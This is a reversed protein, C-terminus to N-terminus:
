EKFTELKDIVAQLSTVTGASWPQPGLATIVLGDRVAEMWEHLVAILEHNENEIVLKDLNVRVDGGNLHIFKGNKNYVVCDGEALDLYRYDRHESGIVVSNERNGNISLIVLDSGKPPNSSYGFQQISPIKNKVEGKLLRSKITQIKTTDDVSESVGRNVMLMLRSKIPEIFRNFAEFLKNPGM